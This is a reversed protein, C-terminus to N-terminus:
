TGIPVYIDVEYSGPYSEKIQRAPYWWGGNAEEGTGFEEPVLKRNEPKSVKFGSDEDIIYTDDSVQMISLRGKDAMNRNRFIELKVAVM